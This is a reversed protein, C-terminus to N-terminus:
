QRPADSNAAGGIVVASRTQRSLADCREKGREPRFDDNCIVYGAEIRPSSRSMVLKYFGDLLFRLGLGWVQYEDSHSFYPAHEARHAIRCFVRNRRPDRQKKGLERPFQRRGAFGPHAFMVIPGNEIGDSEPQRM